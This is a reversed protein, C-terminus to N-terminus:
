AVGQLAMEHRIASATEVLIRGLAAHRHGLDIHDSPGGICVAAIPNGAGDLVPAAVSQIGPDHEQDNTAYGRDAVRDLEEVFRDRNTITRETFPTFRIGSLLSRRDVNCMSALLVKGQATAHLPGRLGPYGTMLGEWSTSVRIVYLLEYATRTSFFVDESARRALDELVPRAAQLLARTIPAGLALGLTGPGTSYQKPPGEVRRATGMEVLVQLIRHVTSVPLDLDRALDSLSVGNPHAALGNLVAITRYVSRAGPEM